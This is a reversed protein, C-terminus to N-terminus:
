KIYIIGFYKKRCSCVEQHVQRREIPTMKNLSKLSPHLFIALLHRIQIMKHEILTEFYYQACNNKMESILNTDDPTSKLHKELINNFVCCWFLTVKKSSEMELTAQRFPTLFKIMEELEEQRINTLYQLENRRTLVETLKEWNKVISELVVLVSNWRTEVFTKLSPVFLDNLGSQKVHTVLEKCWKLIEKPSGDLFIKHVTNHLFHPGDNHRTYKELAKVINAGRDTVFTISKDEIDIGYENLISKMQEQLYQGTKSQESPLPKNDIVRSHLTFNEDIYHITVGLYSIKRIKDTWIDLCVGAGSGDESFLNELIPKLKKKVEEFQLLINRAVIDASPLYVTPEKQLGNYKLCIYSFAKLLANLGEGNLANLPRLDRIIFDSCAKKILLKDEKTLDEMYRNIEHPVENNENTINKKELAAKLCSNQHNLLKSTGSKAIFKYVKKCYICCVFEKLVKGDEDAINYFTNWARSSKTTESDKQNNRSPVLTWKGDIVFEHVRSALLEVEPEQNATDRNDNSAVSSM